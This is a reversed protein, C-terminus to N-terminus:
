NTRLQALVNKGLSVAVNMVPSAFKSLLASLFGGSQIINSLQTNSLEMDTSM